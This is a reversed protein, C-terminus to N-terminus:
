TAYTIAKQEAPTLHDVCSFSQHGYCYGDGDGGGYQIRHDGVAITERGDVEDVSVVEAVPIGGEFGAPSHVRIEAVDWHALRRGIQAVLDDAEECSLYEVGLEIEVLVRDTV